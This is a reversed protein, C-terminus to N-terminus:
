VNRFVDGNVQSFAFWESPSKYGAQGTYSTAVWMVGGQAYKIISKPVPWVNNYITKFGGLNTGLVSVPATNDSGVALNRAVYTNKGLTITGPLLGGEVRLFRGTSSSNTATNGVIHIDSVTRGYNDRPNIAIASIANASFSNNRIALHHTGPYVNLQYGGIKNNDIVVWSTNTSSPETGEGRPGVRIPGGHTTNGYIYAWSGRQMEITGKSGDQGDGASQRNLNTLDNYAILVNKGDMIRITHERTSNAAHNGLAVVGNGQLWGLYGRIGTASPADNDEFIFGTPNQNANVGDDVNLFTCDRVAVDTGGVFVGSVGTKNAIAGKPKYPSDFTLNEIVTHKSSKFTQIASTGSAVSLVPNSGSGYAGVHVNAGTVSMAHTTTWTQGRKFLIKVNGSKAFESARAFSKIPSSSSGSNSDKGASADVYVMRRSDGTVSVTTSTTSSKGNGDTVTLRVTYTGARDYVHGATWGPLRNYAGSPDGFDWAYTAYLPSNPVNSDTASVTVPMGAVGTRSGLVKLVATPAASSVSGAPTVSGGSSPIAVVPTSTSGGTSGTSAAKGTVTFKLTRSASLTGKGSAQSYQLVQLTHAGAAPTWSHFDGNTDAGIAYPAFTETIVTKGDMKFVVSGAKG